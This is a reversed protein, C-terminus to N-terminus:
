EGLMGELKHMEKSTKAVASITKEILNSSMISPEESPSSIIGSSIKFCLVFFITAAM